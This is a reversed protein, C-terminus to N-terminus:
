KMVPSLTERKKIKKLADEFHRLGIRLRVSKTTINDETKKDKYHKNLQSFVDTSDSKQILNIHEKIAVIA